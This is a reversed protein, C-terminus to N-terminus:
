SFQRLSTRHILFSKTPRATLSALRQPAGGKGRLSKDWGSLELPLQWLFDITRFFKIKRASLRINTIDKKYKKESVPSRPLDEDGCCPLWGLQPNRSSLTINQSLLRAEGWGKKRLKSRLRTHTQHNDTKRCIGPFGTPLM